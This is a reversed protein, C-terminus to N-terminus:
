FIYYFGINAGFSYLHEKVSDVRKPFFSYRFIPEFRLNMKQLIEFDIGLGLLGSLNNKIPQNINQENYVKQGSNSYNLITKNNLYINGAIGGSIFLSPNTKTVIYNVKIPMDLYYYNYTAVFKEGTSVLSDNDYIYHDLSKTKKGKNSFRLGLDIFLRNNIKILVTLGTTFGFKPIQISDRHKAMDQSYLNGDYAIINRYCLDPSFNIGVFIKGDNISDNKQSYSQLVIVSLLITLIKM